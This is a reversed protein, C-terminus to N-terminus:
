MAAAVICGIEFSGQVGKGSEASRTSRSLDPDLDHYHFPPKLSEEQM